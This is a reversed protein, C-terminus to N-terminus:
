ETRQSGPTLASELQPVREYYGSRDNRRVSFLDYTMRISDRLPHIRSSPKYYWAIPVERIVYGRKRAIFLLEVDFGWGSLRQCSALDRAVERTFCKFGCQTDQIDPLVLRRVLWNFVRGMLHRLEPEGYRVAGPAERSGIGVQCGEEAAAWFLSFQEIPMSLDADCIFLLDGTAKLLGQKIAQGKGGHPVSLLRLAAWSAAWEEVVQATPDASGDDVVLVEIQYSQQAAYAQLQALTEPLRLAENYAPIVISLLPGTSM